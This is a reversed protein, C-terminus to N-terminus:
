LPFDIFSFSGSAAQNAARGKVAMIVFVERGDPNTAVKPVTFENTIANTALETTMQGVGVRNGSPDSKSTLLFLITGGTTTCGFNIGTVLTGFGKEVYHAATDSNTRGVEIREFTITGLTNQLSIAGLAVGTVGVRTPTFGDIRYIDTASTLIPALGNMTIVETKRKFPEAINSPSTIYTITVQQVGIGAATDDASTSVVRMQQAATPQNSPFTVSTVNSLIIANAFPISDNVGTKNGTTVGPILGLSAAIPYPYVIGVQRSPDDTLDAKTSRQRTDAM